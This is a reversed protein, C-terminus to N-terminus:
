YISWVQNGNTTSTTAQWNVDFGGASMPASTKTIALYNGGVQTALVFGYKGVYQGATEYAVHIQYDALTNTAWTYVDCNSTPTYREVSYNEDIMTLMKYTGNSSSVFKFMQSQPYDNTFPYVTVNCNQYVAGDTYVNLHLTGNHYRRWGTPAVARAVVESGNDTTVEAAFCPVALSAMLALSLVVAGIKKWFKTM